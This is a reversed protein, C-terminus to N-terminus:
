RRFKLKSVVPAGAGAGTGEVAGAGEVAGTGGVAVAGGGAGAGAGAVTSAGAGPGVVSKIIPSEGAPIAVGKAKGGRPTRGVAADGGGGGGRARKRAPEREAADLETGGAVAEAAASAAPGNAAVSSAHPLPPPLPPPPPPPALIVPLPLATPWLETLVLAVDAASVVPPGASTGGAGVVAGAGSVARSGALTAALSSVIDVWRGMVEDILDVAGDDLQASADLTRALARVRARSAAREALEWPLSVPMGVSGKGLAARLAPGCNHEDLRAPAAVGVVAGSAPAPAVGSTSAGLLAAAQLASASLKKM